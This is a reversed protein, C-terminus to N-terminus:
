VYSVGMREAVRRVIVHAIRLGSREGPFIRQDNIETVIEDLVAACFESASPETTKSDSM